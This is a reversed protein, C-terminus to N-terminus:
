KVEIGNRVAERVMTFQKKLKNFEEPTYCLFDVPYDLNWYKYFGRARKFSKKRRFKDSVILLDVDSWKHTKGRAQSGFLIMKRIPIYGSLDKKFRRLELILDENKGM